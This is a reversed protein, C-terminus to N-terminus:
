HGGSALSVHGDRGARGTEQYFGEFSKPMDYHFVYRVHAQDVGQTLDAAAFRNKDRRGFRVMGFAITAVMCELLGAKWDDLLQSREADSLKAHFAKAKIGYLKLADAVEVCQGDAHCM